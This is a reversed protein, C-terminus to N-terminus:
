NTVTFYIYNSELEPTQECNDCSFTPIRLYAQIRYQGKEFKFPALLKIYFSLSKNKSIYICNCCTDMCKDRFMAGRIAANEYHVFKNNNKKWMIPYILNATPAGVSGQLYTTDQVWYKTFKKNTITVKFSWQSPVKSNSDLLVMKLQMKDQSYSRFFLVLSIFVIITKMRNFNCHYEVLLEGM